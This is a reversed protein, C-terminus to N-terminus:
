KKVPGLHEIGFIHLRIASLNERSALLPTGRTARKLSCAPDSPLGFSPNDFPERRLGRGAFRFGRTAEAVDRSVPVPGGMRICPPRTPGSAACSHNGELIFVDGYKRFRASLAGM